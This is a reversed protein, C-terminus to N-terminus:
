EAQALQVPLQRLMALQQQYRQGVQKFQALATGSLPPTKLVTSSPDVPQQNVRVEFHLHPGTSRGTNGVYGIIDGEKVTKGPKAQEGFRSLHAYLTQYRTQHRLTVVNGYGDQYEASVVQGAAPARVPTGIAAAYDVGQHMRLGGLVPHVRIGFGSTIRAGEVPEVTFGQKLPQGNGDYYSGSESDHQHYFATFTQKDRQVNAALVQGYGILDGEYYLREFVVQVSDGSRLSQLAMRDSFIEQLQQLVERPLDARQAAQQFSQKGQLRIHAVGELRRPEIADAHTQWHGERRQLWVLQTEGQADDKLFRVAFLQGQDNTQVHLTAGAPLKLLDKSMEDQQLLSTSDARQIGLRSLVTLLRDGRQIIEARWYRNGSMPLTNVTPLALSETIWERSPTADTASNPAIAFATAMALAPVIATASLWALHSRWPSDQDFLFTAKQAQTLPKRYDMGTESCQLIALLRRM